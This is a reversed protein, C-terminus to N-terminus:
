SRRITGNKDFSRDTKKIIELIFLNSEIRFLSAFLIRSWKSKKKSSSKYFKFSKLWKSIYLNLNAQPRFGDVRQALFHLTSRVNLFQQEWVEGLDHPIIVFKKVNTRAKQIHHLEVKTNNAQIKLLSLELQILPYFGTSKIIILLTM